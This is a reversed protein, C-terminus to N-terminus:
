AAQSVGNGLGDAVFRGFLKEARMEEELTDRLLQAAFTLGLGRAWSELSGYRAVEYREVAQASAAFAADLPEPGMPNEIARRSNEVAEVIADCTEGHVPNDIQDPWAMDDFIRLLREIHRQTEVIHDEFAKKLDPSGTDRAMKKFARLVLKEAFFADKLGEVFHERLKPGAIL